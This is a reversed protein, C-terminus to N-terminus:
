KQVKSLDAKNLLCPKGSADTVVLTGNGVDTIQTSQKVYVPSRLKLNLDSDYKAVIFNNDEQIICYYDTEDKVLVSEAAVNETGTKTITLTDMDISVIRVTGNGSYEGAIAIFGNEDKYFTRNRIFTVPSQKVLNGNKSNIQVITSLNRSEDIIHLGYVSLARLNAAQENIMDQVDKAIDTRDNFAETQFRDSDTQELAAIRRAEDAKIQAEAALREAEDARMKAENALRQAEEAAKVAEDAEQQAELDDPNQTAIEQLREANEQAQTAQQQQQVAETQAAQANARETNAERQATVAQQAAEQARATAENSEREKIDVMQQRADINRGEEERMSDIVRQDSIVTTDITSLGGREINYLPIVIESQGPWDRYSLSLGCNEATLNQIVDDKYKERFADLNGRYVANYVTAFVALTDADARSYGYARSLYGSIIRRVNSIHDVGASPGIYLIDADRKKGDASAVSVSHVLYYRERTGAQTATTPYLAVTDGLVGGIERISQASDIRDYPGTYNIFRISEGSVSRIEEEDVSQGFAAALCLCISTFYIINKKNFIKM